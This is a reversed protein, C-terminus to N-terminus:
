QTQKTAGSRAIVGTKKMGWFVLMFFAIGRLDYLMDSFSFERFPLFVQWTEILIGYFLALIFIKAYPIQSKGVKYYGYCLLWAFIGFVFFHLMKDSFLFRFVDNARALRSFRGEPVTHGLFVIVAYIWAYVFPGIKERM